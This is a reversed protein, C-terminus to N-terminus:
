NTSTLIDTDATAPVDATTPEEEEAPAPAPAPATMEQYTAYFPKQESLWKQYEEMTEVVIVRRMNYHAGGCIQQCSMEYEFEPNGKIERMEATTVKPTFFFKTPMGPVADMKVRFHMLTASHLVDMSRIHLHVPVDVPLHIETAVVDDHTKTDDFNLGLTNVGEIFKIHAQGLEKDAGPYRIDWQFQRGTLEIDISSAIIEEDPDMIKHWNRVGDAVLITMVIAPVVTWIVELKNNHPYYLAKQGPRNQYRWAFYFLISNTVIVVAISVWMTRWFMKDLAVGHESAPDTVMAFKPYWYSSSWIAAIMGVIFFLFLLTGNMKTPNWDKFPDIKKLRLVMSMSYVVLLFIIILLWKTLSLLSVADM